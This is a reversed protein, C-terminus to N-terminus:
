RVPLAVVDNGLGLAVPTERSLSIVQNATPEVFGMAMARERIALLSSSSAVQIDLSEAIGEEVRVDRELQGMEKGLTALENSVIVQTLLLVVAVAPLILEICRAIRKM